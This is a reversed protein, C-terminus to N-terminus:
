IGIILIFHTVVDGSWGNPIRTIIKIYTNTYDSITDWVSYGHMTVQATYVTNFSIPYNFQVDWGKATKGWVFLLSNSIKRVM